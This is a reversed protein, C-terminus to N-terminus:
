FPTKCEVYYNNSKQLISEQVLNSNFLYVYKRCGSAEILYVGVCM